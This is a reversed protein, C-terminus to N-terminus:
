SNAVCSPLGLTQDILEVFVKPALPKRLCYTGNGAIHSRRIIDPRQASSLFMVPMDEMGLQQKIRQCTEVGSEDHLNLDCVILDPPNAEAAALADEATSCCCCGFGAGQLLEDVEQLVELEGGIVLILPRDQGLHKM